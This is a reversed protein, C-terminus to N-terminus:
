HHLSPLTQIEGGIESFYKFMERAKDLILTEDESSFDCSNMSEKFAMWRPRQQDQYRDFYSAGENEPLELGQRLNRAIMKAGNTSGELVYLFGLLGSPSTKEFSAMLQRTSGLPGPDDILQFHNLDNRLCTLDLHYDKVVTKVAPHDANKELQENLAKHMTLLEQLYRSYSDRSLKGRGLMRQFENSEAQDHLPQTAERLLQMILPREGISPESM